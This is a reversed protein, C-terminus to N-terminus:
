TPSTAPPPVHGSKRLQAVLKALLMRLYPDKEKSEAQIAESIARPDDMAALGFIAGNRACFSPHLLAEELIARRVPSTVAHDIRGLCRLAESVVSDNTQANSIREQIAVLAPEGHTTVLLELQRSFDNEIGDEFPVESAVAFLESIRAEIPDSASGWVGVVRGLDASTPREFSHQLLANAVQKRLWDYQSLGVQGFNPGKEFLTTKAEDIIIFPSGYREPALITDAFPEQHLSEGLELSESLRLEFPDSPKVRMTSQSTTWGHPDTPMWASGASRMVGGSTFSSPSEPTCFYNRRMIPRVQDIRIRGVGQGVVSAFSDESIPDLRSM